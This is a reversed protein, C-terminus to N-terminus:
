LETRIDSGKNCQPRPPKGSRGLLNWHLVFAYYHELLTKDTLHGHANYYSWVQGRGIQRIDNVRFNVSIWRCANCLRDVRKGRSQKGGHRLYTHAHSRIQSEVMIPM